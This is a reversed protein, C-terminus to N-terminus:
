QGKNKALSAFYKLDKDLEHEDLTKDADQLRQELRIRLNDLERAKDPKIDQLSRLTDYDELMKETEPDRLSDM